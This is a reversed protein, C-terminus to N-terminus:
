PRYWGAYKGNRFIFRIGFLCLYITNSDECSRKIMKEGKENMFKDMCKKCIYRDLQASYYLNVLQRNCDFCTSTHLVTPKPRFKFNSMKYMDLYPTEFDFM